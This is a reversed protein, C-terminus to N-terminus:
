LGLVTAGMGASACAWLLAAGVTIGITFAIAWRM